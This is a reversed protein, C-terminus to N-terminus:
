VAWLWNVPSHFSIFYFSVLSVSPRESEFREVETKVTEWHSSTSFDGVKCSM